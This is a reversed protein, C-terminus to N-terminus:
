GAGVSFALVDTDLVGRRLDLSVERALRDRGSLRPAVATKTEREGTRIVPVQGGRM